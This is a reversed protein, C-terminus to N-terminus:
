KLIAKIRPFIGEQASLFIINLELMTYCNIEISHLLHYEPYPLFQYLGIIIQICPIQNIPFILLIYTNSITKLM